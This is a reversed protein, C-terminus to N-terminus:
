ADEDEIDHTMIDHQINELQGLLTFVGCDDDLIIARIVDGNKLTGAVVLSEIEFAENKEKIVDLTLKIRNATTNLHVTM